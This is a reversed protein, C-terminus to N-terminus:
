RPLFKKTVATGTSDAVEILANAGRPGVNTAIRWRKPGFLIYKRKKVVSVPELWPWGQQEVILHASQLAEERTMTVLIVKRIM